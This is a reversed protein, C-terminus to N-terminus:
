KLAVEVGPEPESCNDEDLEESEISELIDVGVEDAPAVGFDPMFMM